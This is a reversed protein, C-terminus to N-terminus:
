EVTKIELNFNSTFTTPVITGFAGHVTLEISSLDDKSSLETRIVTSDAGTSCSGTFKMGVLDHRRRLLPDASAQNKRQYCYILSGVKLTIFGNHAANSVPANDIDILAPVVVSFDTSEVKGSLAVSNTSCNPSVAVSCDSKLEVFRSNYQAADGDTGPTGNSGPIGKSGKGCSTTLLILIILTKM